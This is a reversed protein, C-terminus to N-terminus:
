SITTLEFHSSYSTRRPCSSDGHRLDVVGPFQTSLLGGRCEPRRESIARLVDSNLDITDGLAQQPLHKRMFGMLVDANQAGAGADDLAIRIEARDAAIPDNPGTPTNQLLDRLAPITVEPPPELIMRPQITPLRSEVAVQEALVLDVRKTLKILGKAMTITLGAAERTIM